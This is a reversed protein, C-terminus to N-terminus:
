KSSHSVDSECQISLSSLIRRQYKPDDLEFIHQNWCDMDYPETVPLDEHDEDVEILVGHKDRLKKSGKLYCRQLNDALMKAIVKANTEVQRENNEDYYVFQTKSKNAYMLAPQPIDLYVKRILRCDGSLKSLACIMIYTLAEKQSSQSTLIQLLDDKTTLCMVKLNQNNIINQNNINQPQPQPQAVMASKLSALEESLYQVKDEVQQLKLQSQAETQAKIGKCRNLKIHANLASKHAYTKKCFSCIEAPIPDKINFSM